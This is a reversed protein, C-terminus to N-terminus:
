RKEEFLELQVTPRRAAVKESRRPVGKLSQMAIVMGIISVIFASSVTLWLSAVAVGFSFPPPKGVGMCILYGSWVGGSVILLDGFM